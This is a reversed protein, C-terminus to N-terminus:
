DRAREAWHLCWCETSRATAVTKFDVSFGSHTVASLFKGLTSMVASNTLKLSLPRTDKTTRIVKTDGPQLKKAPLGDSFLALSRAHWVRGVVVCHHELDHRYCPSGVSTM